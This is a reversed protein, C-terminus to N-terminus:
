RRPAKAAPQRKQRTVADLIDTLIRQVIDLHRAAGRIVVHDGAAAAGSGRGGSLYPCAAAALAAPSVCGGAPILRMALEPRRQPAPPIGALLARERGTLLTLAGDHESVTLGATALAALAQQPTADTLNAWIAAGVAFGGVVIQRDLAVGLAVGLAGASAGRSVVRCRRGAGKGTCTVRAEAKAQPTAPIVAPWSPRFPAPALCTFPPAAAGAGEVSNIMSELLDLRSAYDRALLRGPELVTVRSRHSGMFACFAAAVQRALAPSDVPIIRTELPKLMMMSLQRERERRDLAEISDVHVGGTAQGPMYGLGHADALDRLVLELARDELRMAVQVRAVEPGVTLSLGLADALAAILAGLRVRDAVVSCRTAALSAIRDKPLASGLAAGGTWRHERRYKVLKPGASGRQVACRVQLAGQKLQYAPLVPAPRPAQPHGTCTYPPAAPARARTPPPTAAPAPPSAVCCGATMLLPALLLLALSRM